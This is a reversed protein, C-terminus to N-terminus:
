ASDVSDVLLVLLRKPGHAGLIIQQGIDGTRSPGTVFNVSRPPGGAARIRAWAEEYAGVVDATPLVVALTEPLFAVMTPRLPSSALVLTGTEAVGADAVTLGVVDDATATGRRVQMLAQRDLGARDLLPDPVAVLRQPLNHFRLYRTVASGVEGIGALREIDTQVAKAMRVFLDIAAEGAVRARAPILNPRPQALRDAIERVLSQESGPERPLAARLRGLITDRASGSV